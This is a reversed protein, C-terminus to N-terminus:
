SMAVVSPMFSAPSTALRSHSASDSYGARSLPLGPSLMEAQVWYMSSLKAVTSSATRTRDASGNVRILSEGGPSCRRAVRCRDSDSALPSLAIMSYM